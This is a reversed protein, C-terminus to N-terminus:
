YATFTVSTLMRVKEVPNLFSVDLIDVMLARIDVRAENQVILEDESTGVVIYV